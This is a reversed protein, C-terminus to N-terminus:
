VTRFVRERCSARGIEEPTLGPSETLVTVQVPSVDPFADIPIRTISRVGLVALLVVALLVLYKYSLSWAVIRNLM